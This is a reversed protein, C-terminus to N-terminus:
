GAKVFWRSNALTDYRNHTNIMPQSDICLCYKSASERHLHFNALIPKVWSPCYKNFKVELITYGKIAYRIHKEDYLEDLAPYAVSRLNKDITIRLNNDQDDIRSLFPEREYIVTIVPKMHMTHMQYFFRKTDDVAHNFKKTNRVLEEAQGGKFLKLADNFPVPARHKFLPVEYKRKIELFVTSDDSEENYGRLRLKKRNKIGDIKTTYCEFDPSDFYISRVTYEKGPLSDAYSDLKTFCSVMERLKDVQDDSIYYKHEYRLM